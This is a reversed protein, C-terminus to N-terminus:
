LDCKNAAMVTYWSHMKSIPMMGSNCMTTNTAATDLILHHFLGFPDQERQRQQQRTNEFFQLGQTAENATTGQCRWNGKVEINSTLTAQVLQCQSSLYM